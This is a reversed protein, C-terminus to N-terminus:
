TFERSNVHFGFRGRDLTDCYARLASLCFENKSLRGLKKRKRDIEMCRLIKEEGIDAREVEEPDLPIMIEYPQHMKQKPMRGAKRTTNPPSDLLHRFTKKQEIM